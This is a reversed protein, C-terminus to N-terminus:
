YQMNGSYYRIEFGTQMTHFELHINGYIANEISHSVYYLYPIDQFESIYSNNEASELEKDEMFLSHFTVGVEALEEPEYCGEEDYYHIWVIEGSIEDIWLTIEKKIVTEDYSVNTGKENVGGDIMNVVWFVGSLENQSYVTSYCLMPRCIEVDFTKVPQSILGMSYYPELKELAIAIVEEPELSATDASVDVKNGYVVLYMKELDSLERSFQMSKMNVYTPEVPITDEIRGVIGPLMGCLVITLAVMIIAGLRKWKRM